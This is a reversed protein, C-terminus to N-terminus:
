KDGIIRLIEDTKDKIMGGKARFNTAQKNPNLIDDLFNEGFPSAAGYFGEQKGSAFVSDGGIDFINDIQALPAQKTEIKRGPAVIAEMFEQQDERRREQEQAERVADMTAQQLRQQEELQAQQDEMQAQLEAQYAAEREAARALAAQDQERQLFMGTAPNFQAGPAFGSYDGELGAELIARDQEDIVNDANVDYRLMDQQAVSEASLEFDALVTAFADIDQQTVENAPVGVFDAVQDVTAGIETVQEGVASIGAELAEQTTGLQALLGSETTGLETALETIAAQTAEDRALGAAENDAIKTELETQLTSIDTALAEQTTGLQELIDAETTGLEGALETIAAQTAEDRALGAAENDAIKTELETQLASIEGSLAEQTTGLQALIDSETTGLETALDSVAKQTAEDRSLGAAENAEITAYIGTAPVVVEEGAENLETTSPTGIATQLTTIEGSLAEQTTDLQTLIDSETTGLETALETIAAQTAEDRSLGAAENAEITAYIGTAPVEIEEGAENLETTSPTGLINSIVGVGADVKGIETLLDSKTTGLETALETIAAQTAEDRSLGAAENAEITAYIGTAPVVVEEGAENLETTSPAGIAAQIQTSLETIATGILQTITTPLVNLNGSITNVAAQIAEDRSLGAAENAEITAYIGTAPVVVEEGADNTETTSPTGLINSIVQVGADVKGIETLLGSETTGLEGALETIAAQTAEDRSLGAAENAEITAYIGTAPVEVEEGAENLETTSPTGIATEVKTSLETIATGILQTITTPLANLNNSVIRIAKQTAEDRSLGAAENAEIIAYIGTAPVVVEEGAENIETTSPAGLINSIVGVGADVKGIETLLDSETTGLEAALATIAAQTAEDRSLGAAENAEIAAYIGTAPVVVEEGAENLETTSPAGIATQLGAIEGSLAEQTTGLQALIDSETTGLETALDSVAKQTAEDRSLGAAENAEIAAYIGTAPVVVEEGADNIETTSPAGITTQIDTVAGSIATKLDTELTNLEGSLADYREKNTTELGEVLAYIGTASADGEAPKGLNTDLYEKIQENSYGLLELDRLVGTGDENSLGTEEDITSRTGLKDLVADDGQEIALFIGTAPDDGEAPKGIVDTVNTQIFNNVNTEIFSIQNSLSDSGIIQNRRLEEVIATISEPHQQLFLQYNELSARDADSLSNAFNIADDDRGDKVLGEFEIYLNRGVSANAPIAPMLPDLLDTKIKDVTAQNATTSVEQIAENLTTQLEYLALDRDIGQLKLANYMDLHYGTPEGGEEFLAEGADDRLINGDDDYQYRPPTGVAAIVDDVKSQMATNLATEFAAFDVYDGLIATVAAQADTGAAIAEEIKSYVGTAKVLTGDEDIYSPTGLNTALNSITTELNEPIKAAVADIATQLDTTDLDINSIAAYLGTAPDDGEAPSGLLTSLEAIAVDQLVGQSTLDGLLGTGDNQYEGDVFTGATGIADDIYKVLTEPDNEGLGIEEKLEDILAYVGTSATTVEEGADNVETTAPQGVTEKVADTAITSLEDGAVLSDVVTAAFAAQNDANAFANGVATEVQTDLLNKYDEDAILASVIEEQTPADERDMLTQIDTQLKEFEENTMLSGGLEEIVNTAEHQALGAEIRANYTDLLEREYRPLSLVYANADEYTVANDGNYNFSETLPVLGDAMNRIHQVVDYHEASTYGTKNTLDEDGYELAYRYELDDILTDDDIAQSNIVVKGTSADYTASSVLSDIINQSPTLGLQEYAEIVENQTLVASDDTANALEVNLPSFTLGAAATLALVSNVDGSRIANYVDDNTTVLLRGIPDNIDSAMRQQPSLYATPAITATTSLGAVFGLGAASGVQADPNESPVGLDYYASEAAIATAGEQIFEGFGESLSVDGVEGVVDLITRDTKVISDLADLGTDGFVSKALVTDLKAEFPLSLAIFTAMVMTGGEISKAYVSQAIDDLMDQQTSEDANIFEETNQLRAYATSYIEDIVAGYEETADQMLSASIADANKTTIKEFIDDGLGKAAARTFGVAGGTLAFGAVTEVIEKKIVEHKFARPYLYAAEGVNLVGDIFGDDPDGELIAYMDEAEQRYAEPLFPSSALGIMDITNQIKNDTISNYDIEDLLRQTVKVGIDAAEEPSAGNQIANYQASAGARRAEGEAASIGVSMAATNFYGVLSSTGDIIAEANFLDADARGYNITAERLKSEQEPTLPGEFNEYEEVIDLYKQRRDALNSMIRRSVRVIWPLESDPVAFTTAVEPSLPTELTSNVENALTTATNNDEISGLAQVWVIPDDKALEVLTSGTPLDLPELKGSVPNFEVAQKAESWSYMGEENLSLFLKGDVIDTLHRDYQSPNMSTKAVDFGLDYLFDINRASRVQITHENAEALSGLDLGVYSNNYADLILSEPETGASFGDAFAPDKHLKELVELSTQGTNSAYTTVDNLLSARINARVTPDSYGIDFESDALVDDVYSDSYATIRENYGDITTPTGNVYGEQMFHTAAEAPTVDGLEAIVAYENWKFNGDLQQAVALSLNNIELQLKPDTEVTLDTLTDAQLQYIITQEDYRQIIGELEGKKVNIDQQIYPLSANFQEMYKTYRDREQPTSDIQSAIEYLRAAEAEMDEISDSLTKIEDAKALAEDDIENLKAAAEKTKRYQGSIKDQKKSIEATLGDLGGLDAAYKLAKKTGEIITATFADSASGEGTIAVQISARFASALTGRGIAALSDTNMLEEVAEATAIEDAVAKALDEDNLNGSVILQSIGLETAEKAADPLNGFMNKAVSGLGDVFASARATVEEPLGDPFIKEVGELGVLAKEVGYDVLDTLPQIVTENVVDVGKKAVELVADAKDGASDLAETFDELLGAPLMAALENVTDEIAEINFMDGVGSIAGKLDRIFGSGITKIEEELDLSDFWDKLVQVGADERAQEHSEGDLRVALYKAFGNKVPEPMQKYVSTDIGLNTLANELYEFGFHDIVATGIDGTGAANILSVTEAGTLGWIGIGEKAVKYAQAYALDGMGTVAQGVFGDAEAKLEAAERAEEGAKIAEKETSPPTLQGGVKLGAIVIGTYDGTKLTEGTAARMGQIALYLKPDTYGIIAMGVGIFFDLPDPEEQPPPQAVYMMTYSGIDSMGNSIDIWVGGHPANELYEDRPLRGGSTDWHNAGYGFSGVGQMQGYAEGSEIPATIYENPGKTKEAIKLAEEESKGDAIARYYASRKSTMGAAMNPLKMYLRTNDRWLGEGDWLKDQEGAEVDMYLPPRYQEVVDWIFATEWAEQSTAHRPFVPARRLNGYNDYEVESLYAPHDNSTGGFPTTGSMGANLKALAYRVSADYEDLFEDSHAYKYWKNDRPNNWADQLAIISNLQKLDRLDSGLGPDADVESVREVEIAEVPMDFHNIASILGMQPFDMFAGMQYNKITNYIEDAIRKEEEGKAGYAAHWDNLSEWPIRHIGGALGIEKLGITKQLDTIADANPVYATRSAFLDQVIQDQSALWAEAGERNDVGLVPNRISYYAHAVDEPTPIVDAGRILGATPDKARRVFTGGNLEETEMPAYKTEFGELLYIPSGDENEGTQIEFTKANGAVVADTTWLHGQSMDMVYQEAIEKRRQMVLFSNTERGYDIDDTTPVKPWVADVRAQAAFFSLGEDRNLREAMEEKTEFTVFNGDDDYYPRVMADPQRETYVDNNVQGLRLQARSIDYVGNFLVPTAGYQVMMEDYAQSNIAYGYKDQPRWARTDTSVELGNPNHYIYGYPINSSAGLMRDQMRENYRPDVPSEGRLIAQYGQFVEDVTLPRPFGQYVIAWAGSFGDPHTPDSIDAYYQHGKSFKSIKGGDLLEELADTDQHRYSGPTHTYFRSSYEKFDKEVDAAAQAEANGITKKDAGEPSKGLLEVLEENAVRAAELEEETYGTKQPDYPFEDDFDPVGDNDADPYATLEPNYPYDDANNGVGDNDYDKAEEPDYMFADHSDTTGDKDTDPDHQKFLYEYNKDVDRSIIEYVDSIGDKDKDYTLEDNIDFDEPSVFQGGEETFTKAAKDKYKEIIYDQYDKNDKSLDPNTPHIDYYDYVGDNDTDLQYEPSDKHPVVRYEGKHLTGDWGITYSPLPAEEAPAEAEHKTPDFPFADEHDAVGDNDADPAETVNADNPDFDFDDPVGDKDKDPAESRTNDAPYYDIKDAVGDNDTDKTYRADQPFDDFADVVGDNDSDTRRALWNEYQSQAEAQRQNQIRPNEPAYDSNDGVGDNDADAWENRDMYFADNKNVVKDGDLDWNGWINEIYYEYEEQTGVMNNMPMVDEKNPVGDGDSDYQYNPDDPYADKYDLVGDGDSDTVRETFSKPYFGVEPDNDDSDFEKAAGDGDEDITRTSDEPWLDFENTVGDGDLDQANWEAKAEARREAMAAKFAIYEEETTVEPHFPKFDESDQVGDDDSDLWKKPDDPFKDYEDPIKDGDRDQVAVKYNFSAENKEAEHYLGIEVVDSYGDGDSDFSWPSDEPEASVDYFLTKVDEELPKGEIHRVLHGDRPDPIDEYSEIPTIKGTGDRDDTRHEKYLALMYDIYEQETKIEPNDIWPDNANIVGDGDTDEDGYRISLFDKRTRVSSDTDDYDANEGVGDNDFDKSERPNYIFADAANRVGDNDFDQIAYWPAFTADDYVDPNEPLPDESDPVGDKDTDPESLDSTVGYNGEDDKPIQQLVNLSKEINNAVEQATATPVKIGEENEPVAIAGDVAANTSLGFFTRLLIIGDTLADLNGSNDVDFAKAVDSEPHAKIWKIYDQVEEATRTAENGIAGITVVDADLGFLYRLLMLGDTLADVIGDQDLDYPSYTGDERMRFIRSKSTDPESSEPESSEPEPEPEPEKEPELEVAGGPDAYIYGTLVDPSWNVTEPLDTEQAAVNRAVVARASSFFSNPANEYNYTAPIDYDKHSTIDDIYKKSEADLNNYAASERLYRWKKPHDGDYHVGPEISINGDDHVGPLDHNTLFVLAQEVSRIPGTFGYYKFAPSIQQLEYALRDRSYLSKGRNITERYVDTARIRDLIVQSAYNLKDYEPHFRFLARDDKNWIPPSYTPLRDRSEYRELFDLAQELNNFQSASSAM